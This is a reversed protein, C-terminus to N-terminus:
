KENQNEAAIRAAQKQQAAIQSLTQGAPADRLVYAEDADAPANSARGTQTVAQSAAVAAKEAATATTATTVNKVAAAPASLREFGYTLLAAADGARDGSNLISAVLTHGNRTASAVLCPGGDNTAGTKIGDAGAFGSTLFENTTECHKTGSDAYPMDFFAHNVLGRFDASKMAYAGIKALDRATSYHNEDPLGAPNTFHTHSAGISAAKENMSQVFSDLSPSVTVAADYAVDCGGVTMMGTLANRLTVKDGPYIGLRSVDGALQQSADSVTMVTDLKGSEVGLISTMMMTTGGPYMRQDANKAYLENGTASDIVCASQADIQPEEALASASFMTFCAALVVAIFTKLSMIM